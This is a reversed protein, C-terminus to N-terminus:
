YLRREWINPLFFQETIVKNIEKIENFESYAFHKVNYKLSVKEYRNSYKSEKELNEAFKFTSHMLFCIWQSILIKCFNKFNIEEDSYLTVVQNVFQKFVM